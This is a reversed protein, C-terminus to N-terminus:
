TRSKKKNCSNRVGPWPNATYSVIWKVISVPKFSPFVHLYRKALKLRWKEFTLDNPIDFNKKISKQSIEESVVSRGEREETGKMGAYKLRKSIYM